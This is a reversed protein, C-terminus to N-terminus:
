KHQYKRVWRSQQLAPFKELKSHINSPTWVEGKFSSLKDDNSLLIRTSKQWYTSTKAEDESITYIPIQNALRKTLLPLFKRKLSEGVIILDM